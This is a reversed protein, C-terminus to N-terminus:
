RRLWTVLDGLAGLSFPLVLAAVLMVVAFWSWFAGARSSIPRLPEPADDHRRFGRADVRLLDGVREPPREERRMPAVGAFALAPGRRM